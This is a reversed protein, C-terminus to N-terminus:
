HPRRESASIASGGGMSHGIVSLRGPDVRDRVPSQRTLYDLAALLQTGRATDFDTRSNTEVGIVVFGFPSLWPGM